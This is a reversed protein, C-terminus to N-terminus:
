KTEEEDRSVFKLGAERSLDDTLPGEFFLEDGASANGQGSEVHAGHLALADRSQEEGALNDVDVADGAPEVELARPRSPPHRSAGHTGGVRCPGRCHCDARGISRSISLYM